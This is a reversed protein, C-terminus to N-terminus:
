VIFLDFINCIRDKEVIGTTRGPNRETGEETIDLTTSGATSTVNVGNNAIWIMM